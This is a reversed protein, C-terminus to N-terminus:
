SNQERNKVKSWVSHTRTEQSGSGTDFVGMGKNEGAGGAKQLNQKTRKNDDNLRGLESEVWKRGEDGGHLGWSQLLGSTEMTKGAQQEQQVDNSNNAFFARLRKMEDFSQVKKNALDQAKRKGSGENGGNTTLDRKQVARLAEQASSAVQTNPTFTRNNNYEFSEFILRQIMKRVQSKTRM